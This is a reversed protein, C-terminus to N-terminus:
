AASLFRQIGVSKLYTYVLAKVAVTGTLRITWVAFVFRRPYSVDLMTASLDREVVCQGTADPFYEHPVNNGEEDAVKLWFLSCGM